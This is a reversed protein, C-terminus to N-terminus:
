MKQLDPNAGPSTDAGRYQNGLLTAALATSTACASHPWLSSRGGEHEDQHFGIIARRFTM